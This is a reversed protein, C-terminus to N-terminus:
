AVELSDTLSAGFRGATNGVPSLVPVIDVVAVTSPDGGAAEVQSVVSTMVPHCNDYTM